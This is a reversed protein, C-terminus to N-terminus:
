YGSSFMGGGGRGLNFKNNPGTWVLGSLISLAVKNNRIRKGDVSIRM